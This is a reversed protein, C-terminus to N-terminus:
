KESSEAPFVVSFSSGTEDSSVLEIKGGHLSAIWQAIALGLGAGSTTTENARSRAKDARYFREFIKAQEATSIGAGTDSITIRYDLANKEAEISVTGGTRNYKIANDLLNIFLRRLLQEDGHMPMEQSASFDLSVNRKEALVRVARVCDALIEDLYIETLSTRFQGADARALTFLDEVIRTLRKSEDHVVALSERYEAASRDDKSLTVESEGRVIALPTRLEHSADAMFRRQQESATELQEFAGQLRELLANFIQALNGLEDKENEVPLRAHLNTAGINAAQRSMEAVPALSKRALFYGGLGTLLLAFPVAVFFISRLRKLFDTQDELSYLILLRYKGAGSELPVAHVRFSEGGFQISSFPRAFADTKLLATDLDADATTSAIRRNDGAAYVAFVYDHFRSEHFRSEDVAERVDNEFSSKGPEDSQEADLSTKFNRAMEALNEDAVDALVRVVLFYTLGAFAILVLALIGVYLATLKTRISNLM